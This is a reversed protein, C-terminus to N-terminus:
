ISTVEQAPTPTHSRLGVEPPLDFPPLHPAGNRAAPRSDVRVAPAPRARLSWRALAIRTYPLALVTMLGAVTIFMTPYPPLGVRESFHLVVGAVPSGVLLGIDWMALTLTTALGRYRSPFSRGGAAVVVPFLMAHGIGYALGPIVLQWVHQVVMLLLVAIVMVVTGGFIIPELGFREPWRRTVIRTLIAAPTYVLFFLGIHKIDLEVAYSRLFTQPLGLGIGSAVGILLVVGPQYERLV